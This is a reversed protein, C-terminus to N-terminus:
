GGPAEKRESRLLKRPRGAARNPEWEVSLTRGSGRRKRAGRLVRALRDQEAERILEKHRREWDQLDMM